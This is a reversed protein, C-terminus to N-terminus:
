CFGLSPFVFRNFKLKSAKIRAQQIRKAPKDSPCGNFSQLRMARRGVRWRDPKLPPSDKGGRVDVFSGPCLKFPARMPSKHLHEVQVGVQNCLKYPVDPHMTRGIDFNVGENM